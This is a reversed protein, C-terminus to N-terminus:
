KVEGGSTVVGDLVDCKQRRRSCLSCRGCCCALHRRMSVLARTVTDCVADADADAAVTEDVVADDGDGDVDVAANTM